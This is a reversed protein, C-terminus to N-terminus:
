WGVPTVVNKGSRLLATVEATDGVLPTYVVCDAELALIEDVQNTAVVGVPGTGIIEGVDVGHKAESHVYCGVLELEPHLLIGEIAARGVGGTAWQIVRIAM